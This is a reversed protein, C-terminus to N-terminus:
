LRIYHDGVKVVIVHESDDPFLDVNIFGKPPASGTPHETETPAPDPTASPTISPAVASSEDPVAPKDAAPTPTASPPAATPKGPGKPPLPRGPKESPRGGPHQHGPTHAKGPSSEPRDHDPRGRDPRPVSPDPSRTQEPSVPPASATTGPLVPVTSPLVTDDILAPPVVPFVGAGPPRLPSGSSPASSAVTPAPGFAETTPPASLALSTATVGVLVAAAIGTLPGASLLATGGAASAGVLSAASTGASVGATTGAAAGVTAGATASVSTSAATGASMGATTGAAANVASGAAPALAAGTAGGIGPATATGTAVLTGLQDVVAGGASGLASATSTEGLAWLAAGGTGLTLPLLLVSLRGSLDEADQALAACRECDALHARVLASSRPGLRHRSHAGLEAITTECAASPATGELQSRIWAQRLGERARYLLASATNARVGLLAGIEAPTRQEVDAYWLAEQWRAPLSRYARVAFDIDAAEEHADDTSLPDIIDALEETSEERLGQDWRNATNRITAFLYPRFARTPGGGRRVLELIRAFAEQVVDEPDQEASVARAASLAADYHKTWLM